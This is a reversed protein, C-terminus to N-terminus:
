RCRLVVIGEPFGAPVVVGHIKCGPDMDGGEHSDPQDVPGASRGAIECCYVLHGTGFFRDDQWEGAVVSCVIGLCGEMSTLRLPQFRELCAVRRGNYGPRM